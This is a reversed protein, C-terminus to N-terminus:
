KNRKEDRESHERAALRLFLGLLFAGLLCPAYHIQPHAMVLRLKNPRSTWRSALVGIALAALNKDIFVSPCDLDSDVTTVQLTCKDIVYLHKSIAIAVQVIQACSCSLPQAVCILRLCRAGNTSLFLLHPEMTKAAHQYAGKAAFFHIM